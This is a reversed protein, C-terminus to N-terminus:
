KPCNEAGSHEYGEMSAFVDLITKLFAVKLELVEDDTHLPLL